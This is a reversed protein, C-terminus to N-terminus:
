GAKKFPPPKPIDAKTITSTLQTKEELVPLEIVVQTEPLTPKPQLPAQEENKIEPRDIASIPTDILALPFSTESLGELVETGADSEQAINMTVTRTPDMFQHLVDNDTVDNQRSVKGSKEPEYTAYPSEVMINEHSENLYGHVKYVEVAGSKGKVKASECPECLFSDKICEYVDHSILLDVGYDKTMSEIRSALNVADGIVTYEMKENSGINGAIVPGINLGMGIKLIPQGRSLRIENLKVLETRMTLCAMLANKTDDRSALPVGWLAMIADGVYKDVVGGHTRIIAVM